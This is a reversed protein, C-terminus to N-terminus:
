APSEDPRPQEGAEVWRELQEPTLDIYDGRELDQFADHIDQLASLPPVHTASSLDIAVLRERMWAAGSRAAEIHEALRSRRVGDLNTVWGEFRQREDVDSPLAFSAVITRRVASVRAPM